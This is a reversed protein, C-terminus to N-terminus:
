VGEPWHSAVVGARVPLDPLPPQTVVGRLDRLAQPSVLARQRGDASQTPGGWAAIEQRLVGELDPQCLGGLPHPSKLRHSVAGGPERQEVLLHRDVLDRLQQTVAALDLELGLGKLRGLVRRAADDLAEGPPLEAFSMMLASFVILGPRNGQFNQRVVERIDEQ